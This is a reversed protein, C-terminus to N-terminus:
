QTGTVSSLLLAVVVIAAIGAGLAVVAALLRATV